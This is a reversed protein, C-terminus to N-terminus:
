ATSSQRAARSTRPSAASRSENKFAAASRRTARPMEAQFRYKMKFHRVVTLRRIGEREGSGRAGLEHRSGDEGRVTTHPSIAAMLLCLLVGLRKTLQRPNSV